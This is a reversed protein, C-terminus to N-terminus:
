DLQDVALRATLHSYHKEIMGVSTGMNVALTHVPVKKFLLGFTAYTHRCSYLARAEGYEDNLMGADELLWDTPPSFRGTACAFSVSM